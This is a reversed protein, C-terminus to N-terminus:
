PKPPSFVAESAKVSAENGVVSLVARNLDLYTEAVRRVDDPTVAAIEELLRETRDQGFGYLSFFVSDSVRSGLTQHDIKSSGALYSKADDIDSDSFPAAASRRVIDLIGTLSEGAKDPACGIYVSFSGVGRGAMYSSSVTYALSKKDRLESFLLGGMGSLASNLVM